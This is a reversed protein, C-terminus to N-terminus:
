SEDHHTEKWKQRAENLAVGHLRFMQRESVEKGAANLDALVQPWRKRDVYHLRLILRSSQTPLSDIFEIVELERREARVLKAYYERTADALAALVVTSDAGGGRPMGTLQATISTARSELSAIKRRLRKIEIRYELISNLFARVPDISDM